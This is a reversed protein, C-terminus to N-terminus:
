FREVKHQTHRHCFCLMHWWGMGMGGGFNGYEIHVEKGIWFAGKMIKDYCTRCAARSTKSYQAQIEGLHKERSLHWPKKWHSEVIEEEDEVVVAASKGKKAPKPARAPKTAVAATAGRKGKRKGLKTNTSVEEPWYKRQHRIEGRTKYWDSSRRPWYKRQQEIKKSVRKRKVPTEEDCYKVPKRTSHKPRGMSSCDELTKWKWFLSM